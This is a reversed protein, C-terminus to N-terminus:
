AQAAPGPRMESQLIEFDLESLHEALTLAEAYLRRTLKLVALLHEATFQDPDVRTAAEILLLGHAVDYADGTLNTANTPTM